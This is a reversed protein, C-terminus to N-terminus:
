KWQQSLLVHPYWFYNYWRRGGEINTRVRQLTHVVYSGCHLHVTHCTYYIEGSGVHRCDLMILGITSILPFHDNILKRVCDRM